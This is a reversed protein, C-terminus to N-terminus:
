AALEKVVGDILDETKVSDAEGEFNLILRHALAPKAVALVDVRTAEDRGQMLARVKAGLILAQVGRPSSGYRLYKKVGAGELSVPNTRLVLEIAFRRLERTTEVARVMAQMEEARLGDIVPVLKTLGGGGSSRRSIAQLEDLGPKGLLLKFFFRDVQAEPLAYTGGTEHSNMTAIVFYPRDLTYTKGGASVHREQMAELLASQTKPTARNIEDALLLQTFVPGKQFVFLKKGDKTEQVITTGIIDAPMLDPTFQIRSSKVGMVAALTKAIMTKGLGTASDILLNGGAFFCILVNEIVEPYGVIVSAMSNRLAEFDRGFSDIATKDLKAM